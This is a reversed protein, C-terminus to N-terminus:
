PRDPEAVCLVVPLEPWDTRPVGSLCEEAAMSAMRALREIGRMPPEFPVAHGIIWEGESDAFRTETPNTLGARIAACAAPASLGVSTVLGSSMVALPHASM